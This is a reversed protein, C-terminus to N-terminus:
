DDALNRRQRKLQARRRKGELRRRVAAESPRTARRSRPPVAAQRLLEVLREVADQRNRLQSRFRHANIIMVGEGTLRKGAIRRLREKVPPPLAACRRVDFRLQVGTEVKNVNQGGPGPSRTFAFVLEGEDIAIDHTVQISM